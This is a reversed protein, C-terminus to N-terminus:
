SKSKVYNKLIPNLSNQARILLIIDTSKHALWTALNVSITSKGTGGKIGGITVIM